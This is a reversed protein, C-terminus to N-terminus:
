EFITALAKPLRQLWSMFEHYDGDQHVHWLNGGVSYGSIKQLALYAANVSQDIVEEGSGGDLILAGDKPYTVKTRSFNKVIGGYHHPVV